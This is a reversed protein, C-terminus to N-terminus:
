LPACPLIVKEMARFSGQYGFIARLPSRLGRYAIRLRAYSQTALPWLVGTAGPSIPPNSNWAGKNFLPRPVGARRQLSQPREGGVEWRQLHGTRSSGSGHLGPSSIGRSPADSVRQAPSLM